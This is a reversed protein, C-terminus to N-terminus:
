SQEALTTRIQQTLNEISYPKRLLPFPHAQNERIDAKDKSYGSTLVIKIQPYNEETWIALAHGDMEGPMLIDSFLLDIPEGSEIITKAMDANEAELTKYGLNNLDRLAVRRVRPEDEVVLIVESSRLSEEEGKTDEPKRDIGRREIFEPIYISVTTGKRPSSEIHCGGNSQQTFGYVMSLGLGSGKGIEKTTFFPEYVHQIDEPSIGSGTDTVAIKVYNGEPLSLSYENGNGIYQRTVSITIIGGKPMADRANISLNLLANEFQSPDVKILLDEESLDAELETNDALTRSLFRVSKAIIENASCIEGRLTRTRSFGLLRQTLEAGDDVASVADEFLEDIDKSTEGVDQRLFRLNGSIISLLNNFDHAIGGTLQGVAEMKQAQNLAVEQKKKDTIDLIIAVFLEEYDHKLHQLHVEVDYHSKDKRQHTTEFIINKQEGKRLPVLMEAFSELTFEPKLDVPTMEKIEEMSFGLNHLASNNVQIFKLSDVDFLYIENLSDEFIQSYRKIKEEAQKSESVDTFIVVAGVLKGHERIPTSVYNIPFSSGDKRWFVENNIRHIAGDKFAHYIPCEDLPYPTGDAKTHHILNHQLKGILEEESWGLMQCAATNIFTVQGKLDVGYIGEGAASLINEAHSRAEIIEYEARKRETIDNIIGSFYKKGGQKWTSLSLEMPFEEGSKRLGTLEVTKGIINYTNSKVARQFGKVHADRYREPMIKTLPHNLIEAKSYGFIKEAAPNWSIIADFNEVAVIIAISSSMSISRYREESARLEKSAEGAKRITFYSVFLGAVLIISMWEYLFIKSEAQKSISRTYITNAMNNAFEVLGDMAETLTAVYIAGKGKTILAAEDNKGERTLAIVESRIPEWDSFLQRVKEIRTKDGLFREETIDFHKYIEAENRDVLSIALDLEETNQALVVDKMHRHMSIIHRNVELLNYSVTFPHEHLKKTLGSISDVVRIAGLEVLATMFILLFFGGILLKTTNKDEKEIIMKEMAFKKEEQKQFFCYLSATWIVFLALARNLLVQWLLGGEKSYYFGLVTLVTCLLATWIPAKTSPFRSSVLVPLLYPASAAVGLPIRLDVYFILTCLTGILGTLFLRNSFLLSTKIM